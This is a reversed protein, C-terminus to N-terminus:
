SSVHSPYWRCFHDLAGSVSIQLSSNIGIGDALACSLKSEIILCLILDWPQLMSLVSSCIGIWFDIQFGSFLIIEVRNYFDFITRCLDSSYARIQNDSLPWQLGALTVPSDRDCGGLFTWGHKTWCWDALRGHCPARVLWDPFDISEQHWLWYSQINLSPLLCITTISLVSLSIASSRRSSAPSSYFM